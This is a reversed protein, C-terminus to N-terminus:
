FSRRDWDPMRRRGVDGCTYLIRFDEEFNNRVKEGMRSIYEAVHTCHTEDTEIKASLRELASEGEAINKFKGEFEGKVEERQFCIERRREQRQALVRGMENCKM